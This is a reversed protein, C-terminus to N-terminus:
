TSKILVTQESFVVNSGQFGYSSCHFAGFWWKSCATVWKLTGPLTREWKDTRQPAECDRSFWRWCLLPPECLTQLWWTQSGKWENNKAGHRRRWRDTNSSTSCLLVSRRMTYTLLHIKSGKRYTTINHSKHKHNTRPACNKLLLM